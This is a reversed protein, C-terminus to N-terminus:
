LLRLLLKLWRLSSEKTKLYTITLEFSCLLAFKLCLNFLVSVFVFVHFLFKKPLVESAEHCLILLRVQFVKCNQEFEKLVLRLM